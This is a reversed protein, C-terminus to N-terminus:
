PGTIIRYFEMPGVANTDTFTFPVSSNTFLSRWDFLNTSTQVIYDPGFNGNITM